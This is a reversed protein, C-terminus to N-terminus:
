IPHTTMLSRFQSFEELKEPSFVVSNQLLDAICIRYVHLRSVSSNVNEFFNKFLSELVM